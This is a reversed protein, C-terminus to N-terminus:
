GQRNVTLSLIRPQGNYYLEYLSYDSLNLLYIGRHDTFVITDSNVFEFDYINKTVSITQTAKGNEFKIFQGSAIQLDPNHGIWINDTSDFAFAGGQWSPRGNHQAASNTVTVTLASTSRYNDYVENIFCCQNLQPDVVSFYVQNHSDIAIDVVSWGVPNHYIFDDVRVYEEDDVYGMDIHVRDYSFYSYLLHDKFLRTAIRRFKKSFTAKRELGTKDLQAIVQDPRLDLLVFIEPFHTLNSIDPTFGYGPRKLVALRKLSEDVQRVDTWLIQSTYPIAWAFGSGIGGGGNVVGIVRGESTLVPAGSFGPQLFGTLFIVKTDTRPSQRATYDSLLSGNTSLVDSLQRLPVEQLKVDFFVQSPEGQPHGAVRLGTKSLNSGASAAELLATSDKASETSTIFALDLDVSVKKLQLDRSFITSRKPNNPDLSPRSASIGTSCGIVGHLATVIGVEEAVITRFGTQVHPPGSALDCTIRLVQSCFGNGEVCRQESQASTHLISFIALFVFFIISNRM